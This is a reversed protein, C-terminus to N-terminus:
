FTDRYLHPNGGDLNVGRLAAQTGLFKFGCHDNPLYGVFLAVNISDEVLWAATNSRGRGGVMTGGKFVPM